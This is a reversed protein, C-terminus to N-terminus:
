LSLNTFQKKPFFFNHLFSFIVLKKFLKKLKKYIYIKLYLILTHNKKKKYVNVYSRSM